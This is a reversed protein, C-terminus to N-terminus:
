ALEVMAAEDLRLSVSSNGLNIVIPGGFPAALTVEVERGPLLGMEILRLSFACPKVVQIIGKNGVGLQSLTKM